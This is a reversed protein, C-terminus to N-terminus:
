ESINQIVIEVLYELRFFGQHILFHRASVTVQRVLSCTSNRRCTNASWGTCTRRTAVLTSCGTPSRPTPPPRGCRSRAAAVCCAISTARRSCRRPPAAPSWSSFRACRPSATACPSRATPRRSLCATTSSRHQSTLTFAFELWQCLKQGFLNCWINQLVFM